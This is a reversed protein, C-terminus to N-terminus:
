SHAQSGGFATSGKLTTGVPGLGRAPVLFGATQGHQVTWLVEWHKKHSLGTEIGYGPLGAGSIHESQSSDRRKNEVLCAPLVVKRLAGRTVHELHMM